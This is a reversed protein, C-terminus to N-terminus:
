DGSYVSLMKQTCRTTVELYYALDAASMEDTDYADVKEEFEALEEIANLYDGLMGVADSPDESYKKMIDVYEDVFAEYSDLFAKLEPDVGAAGGDEEHDEAAERGNTNSSGHSLRATEIIEELNKEAEDEDSNNYACIVCLVKGEASNNILYFQVSADEGNDDKGAYEKKFGPLGAVRVEDLGGIEEWDGDPLRFTEEFSEKQTKFNYDSIVGDISIFKIGQEGEADGKLWLDGEGSNEKHYDGPLRFIIGGYTVEQYGVDEGADKEEFASVQSQDPEGAYLGSNERKILDGYEAASLVRAENSIKTYKENKWKWSKGEFFLENVNGDKVDATLLCNGKNWYWRVQDKDYTWLCNTDLVRFSNEYFTATGDPFFTLACEDEGIYTGVVSEAKEGGYQIQLKQVDRSAYYAGVPILICAAILAGIAVGKLSARKALCIIALVFIAIGAFLTVSRLWFSFALCAVAAVFLLIGPLAGMRKPEKQVQSSVIDISEPAKNEVSEKLESFDVTEEASDPLIEQEMPLDDQKTGCNQCFKANEPLEAGCEKCFAM